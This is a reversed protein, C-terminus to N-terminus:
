EEKKVDEVEEKYDPIREVFLLNKMPILFQKTEPTGTILVGTLCGETFWQPFRETENEPNVFCEIVSISQGNTLHIRFCVQKM